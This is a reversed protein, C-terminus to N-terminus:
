GLRLRERKALHRGLVQCPDQQMGQTLFTVPAGQGVRQRLEHALLLIREDGLGKPFRVEIFSVLSHRGGAKTGREQRASFVPESVKQHRKM